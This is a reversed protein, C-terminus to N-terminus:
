TAFAWDPGALLVSGSSEAEGDAPLPSLAGVMILLKCWVLRDKVVVVIRM